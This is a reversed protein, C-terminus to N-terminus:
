PLADLLLDRVPRKGVQLPDVRAQVERAAAHLEGVPMDSDARVSVERVQLPDVRAQVDGTVTHFDDVPLDRHARACAHPMGPDYLPQYLGKKLANSLLPPLPVRIQGNMHRRHIGSRM